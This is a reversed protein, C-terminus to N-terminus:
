VSKTPKSWFVLRFFLSLLNEPVEKKNAKREMIRQEDDDFKSPNRLQDSVLNEFGAAFLVAPNNSRNVNNRVRRMKTAENTNDTKTPPM